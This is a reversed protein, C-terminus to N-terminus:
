KNKKIVNYYKLMTKIMKNSNWTFDDLYHTLKCVENMINGYQKFLNQLKEYESQQKLDM